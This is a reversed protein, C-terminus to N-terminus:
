VNKLFLWVSLMEDHAVILCQGNERRIAVEELNLVGIFSDLLTSCRNSDSSLVDDDKTDLALRSSLQLVRSRHLLDCLEVTVQRQCKSAESGISTNQDVKCTEFALAVTEINLVGARDLVNSSVDGSCLLLVGLSTSSSRKTERSEDGTVSAGALWLEVHSIGHAGVSLPSDTEEREGGGGGRM